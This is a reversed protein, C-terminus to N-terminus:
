NFNSTFGMKMEGCFRFLIEYDHQTSLDRYYVGNELRKFIEFELFIM